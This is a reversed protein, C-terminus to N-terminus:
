PDYRSPPASKRRARKGGVAPLSSLSPALSTPAATVSALVHSTVGGPPLIAAILRNRDVTSLRLDSSSVLHSLAVESAQAFSGAVGPLDTYHQDPVTSGPAWIGIRNREAVTLGLEQYNSALWMRASKSSFNRPDLEMSAVTSKILTSVDTTQVRRCLAIGSQGPISSCQSTSVRAHRGTDAYRYTTVIEQPGNHSRAEWEVLADVLHSSLPTNRGAVFPELAGKAHGVTGSSQQESISGRTKTTPILYSVSRVLARRSELCSGGLSLLLARAQGGGSAVLPDAGGLTPHFSFSMHCALIAHESPTSSGSAVHGVRLGTNMCLLVALYAGRLRFGEGNPNDWNALDGDWHTARSAAIFEVPLPVKRSAQSKTYAALLEPRSLACGKRATALVSSEFGRDRHPVTTVFAFRLASVMKSLAKGRYGDSYLSAVFSALIVGCEHDESVGTLFRGPQCGGTPFRLLLFADWKSLVTRYGTRTSAKVSNLLLDSLQQACGSDRGLFETLSFSLVEDEDQDYSGDHESSFLFAAADVRSTEVSFLEVEPSEVPSVLVDVGAYAAPAAPVLLRCEPVSSAPGASLSGQVPCLQLVTAVSPLLVLNGLATAPPVPVPQGGERTDVM